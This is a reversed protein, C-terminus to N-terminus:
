RIEFHLDALRKLEAAMAPGWYFRRPDIGVWTDPAMQVVADTPRPLADLETWRAAPPYFAIWDYATAPGDVFDRVFVADQADASSNWATLLDRVAPMGVVPALLRGFRRERDHFQQVRPDALYRAAKRAAEPTDSDLVDVWV